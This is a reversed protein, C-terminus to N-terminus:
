KVELPQPKQAEHNHNEDSFVRLRSMRIERLKNDPLMGYVAFEIVKRPDENMQQQMTKSKLAGAYGSHRYYRKDFLKNGTIKIKAANIVVVNDGSDMHPTYRPKQKGQLYKAVVAAVRGPSQNSADVIYWNHDLDAKKASYTTM